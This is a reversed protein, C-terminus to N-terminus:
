AIVKLLSTLTEHIEEWTMANRNTNYLKMFIEFKQM